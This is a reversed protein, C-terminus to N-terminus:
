LFGCDTLLFLDVARQISPRSATYLVRAVLWTTKDICAASVSFAILVRYHDQSRRQISRLDLFSVSANCGPFAYNSSFNDEVAMQVM